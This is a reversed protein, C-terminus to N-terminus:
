LNVVHSFHLNVRRGHLFVGLDSVSSEVHADACEERREGADQVCDCRELFGVLLGGAWAAASAVSGVLSPQLRAAMDSHVGPALLNSM